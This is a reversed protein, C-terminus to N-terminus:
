KKRPVKCGQWEQIDRLVRIQLQWYPTFKNLPISKADFGEAIGTSCRKRKPNEKKVETDVEGAVMSRRTLRKREQLREEYEAVEKPTKEKNGKLWELHEHSKKFMRFMVEEPGVNGNYIQELPVVCRDNSKNHFEMTAM